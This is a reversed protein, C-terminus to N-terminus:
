SFPSQVFFLWRVIGCQVFEMEVPFQLVLLSPLRPKSDCSGAPRSELHMESLLDLGREFPVPSVNVRKQPAEYLGGRNQFAEIGSQARTSRGSWSLSTKM